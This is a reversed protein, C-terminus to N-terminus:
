FVMSLLEVVPLLFQDPNNPPRKPVPTRPQVGRLTGQGDPLRSILQSFTAASQGFYATPQGLDQISPHRSMEPFERFHLGAQPQQTRLANQLPTIGQGQIRLCPFHNAIWLTHTRPLTETGPKGLTFNM